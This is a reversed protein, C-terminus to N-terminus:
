YRIQSLMEEAPGDLLPSLFNDVDGKMRSQEPFHLHHLSFSLQQPLELCQYSWSSGKTGMLYPKQGKTYWVIGHVLPSATYNFIRSRM